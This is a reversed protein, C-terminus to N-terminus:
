AQFSWGFIGPGPAKSSNISGQFNTEAAPQFASRLWARAALNAGTGWAFSQVTSPPYHDAGKTPTIALVLTTTAILIVLSGVMSRLLLRGVM